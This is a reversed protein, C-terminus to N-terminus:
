TSAFVQVLFLVDYSAMLFILLLNPFRIFSVSFTLNFGDPLEAVKKTSFQNISILACYSKQLKIFWFYNTTKLFWYCKATIINNSYNKTSKLVQRDTRSINSSRRKRRLRKFTFTTSPAVTFDEDFEMELKILNQLNLQCDKFSLVAFM